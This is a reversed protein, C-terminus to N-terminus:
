LIQLHTGINQLLSPLLAQAIDKLRKGMRSFRFSTLAPANLPPSLCISAM